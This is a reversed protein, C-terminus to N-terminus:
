FSKQWGLTLTWDREMQPGNLDQVIPFGVEAALRHGRAAGKTGALNVGFLLDVTDGGHFDPNATQVPGMVTADRGEIRGQSAAALRTSLSIWNAPEYAVWATAAVRDGLAYDADNEGLRVVASLQGGISVKEGQWRYTTSPKLDWTGSGPQMPYPLRVTPMMGMPTLIDDEESISGTPISVAGTVVWERRNKEKVLPVIAGVTTDGFGDAKTTFEGRVMTGMGGMYTVHDMSATRYSGMAMLTVRDSPAWMIGAMHMDMRMDTPVVRLTPPQGEMGAFMNPVTTAITDADVSESGIRNGGMEMHMFRYSVMVEGKAHSHDAMVGIPAHSAAHTGDHALAPASAVLTAGAVMCAARAFIKDTM